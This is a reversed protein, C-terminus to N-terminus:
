LIKNKNKRRKTSTHAMATPSDAPDPEKKTPTVHRNRCKVAKELISFQSVYWFIPFLFGSNQLSPKRGRLDATEGCGSCLRLYPPFPFSTELFPFSYYEVGKQKLWEGREGWRKHQHREAGSRIKKIKKQVTGKSAQENINTDTKNEFLFM